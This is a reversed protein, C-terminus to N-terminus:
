FWEVIKWNNKVAFYGVIPIIILSVGFMGLIIDSFM